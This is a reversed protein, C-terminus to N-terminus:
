RDKQLVKDLSKSYKSLANQIDKYDKTISASMTKTNKALDELSKVM